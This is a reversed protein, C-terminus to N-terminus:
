SLRISALMLIVSFIHEVNDEFTQSTWITSGGTTERRLDLNAVGHSTFQDGVNHTSGGTSEIRRDWVLTIAIYQDAGLQDVVYEATSGVGGISGFDWGILPIEGPGYEGLQLQQVARRVNLHGAGMQDDLSTFQSAFAESETWDMDNSDISTRVSGHVGALKDASNLMVAKM